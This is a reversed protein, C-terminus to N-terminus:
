LPLLGAPGAPIGATLWDYWAPLGSGTVSSLHIMTARPSVQGIYEGFKGIDFDVHPSLDTKTVVVLDASRFM